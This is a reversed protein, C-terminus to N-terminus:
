KNVEILSITIANVVYAVLSNKGRHNNYGSFYAQIKSIKVAARPTAIPTSLGYIQVIIDKLFYWRADFDQAFSAVFQIRLHLWKRFVILHMM